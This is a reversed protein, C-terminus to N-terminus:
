KKLISMPDILNGNKYVTFHLHPGTSYGTSGVLGIVSGQNVYSGKKALIQSMHGYLTQYGDIHTIIVFNGFVSSYGAYSITGSMSAKIPTGKPAAMDIGTHRSAVGTIPDSRPGFKSTLRWGSSLPYIFMEGMAKRLSKTDMKAGPIFLAMGEALVESSLDNVDLVDEMRVSYKSCVSSITDGKQVKYLLGDMNPIKLKQGAKLSRVNDIGNVAILTSINSLGFRQTIGSITDGSRVSYNQYSISEKLEPKLIETVTGDSNLLDGEDNFLAESNHALESMANDLLAYSSQQNDSEFVVAKAYSQVYDVTYRCIFPVAACLAVCPIIYLYRLFSSFVKVTHLAAGKASKYTDKFATMERRKLSKADNYSVYRKNYRNRNFFSKLPNDTFSKSDSYSIIEM